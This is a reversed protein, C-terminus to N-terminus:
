QLAAVEEPTTLLDVDRRGAWAIGRLFIARAHPSAFTTVHHGLLSVFARYPQGRELQNEYVWIQPILKGIAPETPAAAGRAPRVPQMSSALIQANPMLHLDWYVEDEITFNAAGKVIPHAPNVYFYTNEGEFYKAVGNEWSGGVITKFWQPERGTVVADHFCVIGGGRKLFKELSARQEGLITGADAAFMVLVDTQELEEATPFRLAGAVQAGRSALLPQWEKLWTPGDHLGNTAPGHTKPGGRLFIRLPAAPEAARTAAAAVLVILFVAIQRLPTLSM